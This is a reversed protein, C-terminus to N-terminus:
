PLGLQARLATAKDNDKLAAKALYEQAGSADGDACLFVAALLMGEVDDDAVNQRAIGARDRMELKKWSVPMSNGQVDIKLEKDDVSLITYREQKDTIRLFVTPKQGAKAQTNIRSNLRTQFEALVKDDVSVKPADVKKQAVLQVKPQAKFFLAGKTYYNGVRLRLYGGDDDAYLAKEGKNNKAAEPNTIGDKNGDRSNTCGGAGGGFLLGIYGASAWETIHKNDPYNELWYEPRNDMYHGETNNCTAYFTNGMPLQWAMLPLRTAKHIEASWERYANFDADAMWAGGTHYNHKLKWESDRDSLDTFLLDWKGCSAVWHVYKKVDPTGWKSVHWAMLVNPAYKDRLAILAKGFGAATDDFEAVDPHGSSKVMVKVKDPDNPAFVQSVVFYGWLDPEHHFIVPKGFEGCKQMLLKIDDFYAKMTGANEANVKNVQDEGGTGKAPLSQLLQYYTLCPICGMKESDNLYFSVFAGAPQNWNKWNSPTNVGGCIYQYRVDWKCGNKKTEDIWADGPASALGLMFFPRLLKAPRSDSEAEAFAPRLTCLALIAILMRPVSM